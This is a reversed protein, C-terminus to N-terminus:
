HTSSRYVMESSRYVMESFRYVMVCFKIKSIYIAGLKNKTRPCISVSTLFHMNGLYTEKVKFQGGGRM